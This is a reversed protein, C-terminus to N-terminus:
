GEAVSAAHGDRLDLHGLEALGDGFARDVLPQLVLAIEDLAILGEDLHDRVLDVGLDGRREFALEHLDCDPFAFGHPHAGHDRLDLGAGRRRAGACGDPGTGARTSPARSSSTFSLTIRLDIASCM